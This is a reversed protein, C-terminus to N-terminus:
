ADAGGPQKKGAIWRAIDVEDFLIDGDPLLVYPIQGARAMRLVRATPWSLLLGIEYPTMLRPLIADV